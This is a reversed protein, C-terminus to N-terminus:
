NRMGWATLISRMEDRVFAIDERDDEDISSSDFVHQFANLLTSSNRLCALTRNMLAAADIESTRRESREKDLDIM